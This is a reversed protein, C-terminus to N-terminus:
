TEDGEVWHHVGPEIVITENEKLETPEGDKYVRLNGQIVSYEETTKAHYHERSRDAVVIAVHNRSNILEKNIEGVIETVEGTMPDKNLKIVVGPYKELLDIKVKEVNM